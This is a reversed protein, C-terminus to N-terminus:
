GVKKQPVVWNNWSHRIKVLLCITQSQLDLFWRIGECGKIWNWATEVSPAFLQEDKLGAQAGVWYRAWTWYFESDVNQNVSHSPERKHVYLSWRRWYDCWIRWPCFAVWPMIMTHSKGFTRSVARVDMDETRVNLAFSVLSSPTRLRSM